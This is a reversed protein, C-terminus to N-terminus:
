DTELYLSDRHINYQQLKRDLTRRAIKLIQSTRMKHYGTERYIQEIYLKEVEELSMGIQPTAMPSIQDTALKTPLQPVDIVGTDAMIVAMEIINELERVNGPWSYSRLLGLAESTLQLKGRGAFKEMFLQALPEIDEPRERLSPVQLTVVNLRYFLDERFRGAHVEEQLNKNTAAIFRVNARRVKTSGVPIFEKEQLVRLLKAQLGPSIDGIEDLFLTGRDAEEILGRQHGIAGTFAGKIHGFLQSELLTDTLAACNITLFRQERRTSSYHITSSIIEKGSGSEGMILISADSLAVKKAMEFVRGFSASRFVVQEPDFRRRIEAKLSRNESVLRNHEILKDVLTNLEGATFPKLLYDYAGQKMAEIAGRVTGFANMLVVHQQPRKLKVRRLLDLGSIDSLHTDLLILDPPDEDRDELAGLLNNGQPFSHVQHGQLHLNKELFDRSGQSEDCIYIKGSQM